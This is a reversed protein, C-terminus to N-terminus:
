CHMWPAWPNVGGSGNPEMLSACAAPRMTKSCISQEYSFGSFRLLWVAMVRRGGRRAAPFTCFSHRALPSSILTRVAGTKRVFPTYVGSVRSDPVGNPEHYPFQRHGSRVPHALETARGRTLLDADRRQVGQFHRLVQQPHHEQADIGVIERDPQSAPLIGSRLPTQDPVGAAGAMGPGTELGTAGHINLRDRGSAQEVAVKLDKPAWYGVPRVARAPHAADASLRNMLAEYAKIFAAQKAPDRKRPIAKLKRHEMGLRHLLAILGSRSEYVIGCERAIWAGAERASRPLPEPIWVKLKDRQEASLLCQSGEHGFSGLGEIGDDQYLLYWTGITGGGPLLGRAIAACSMGDDLLVLANARRALRHAASGDRALEILDRRSEGDLFGSSIMGGALGVRQHKALPTEPKMVPPTYM